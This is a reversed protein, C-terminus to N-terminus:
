GQRGQFTDGPVQRVFVHQQYEVIEFLRDSGAGVHHREQSGAGPELDQHGATFRQAEAGFM